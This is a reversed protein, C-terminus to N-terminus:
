PASVALLSPLGDWSGGVSVGQAIRLLALLVISVVGLTEYSPLFAIVCTITGLAFLAISLKVGRGYRVHLISFLQSGFPRAVFAFSFIVFSYLTGTTSPVFPFFVYPFALVSAIGFVFFNFYESVRGILVGIAIDSLAVKDHDVHIIRGAQIDANPDASRAPTTPMTGPELNAHVCTATTPRAVHRSSPPRRGPLARPARQLAMFCATQGIGSERST